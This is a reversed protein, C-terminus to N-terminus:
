DIISVFVEGFTITGEGDYREDIKTAREIPSCDMRRAM